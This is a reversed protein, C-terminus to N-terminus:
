LIARWENSENIKWNDPTHNVIACNGYEDSRLPCIICGDIDCIKQYSLCTQKIARLANIIVNKEEDKM